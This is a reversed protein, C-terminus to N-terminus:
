DRTIYGNTNFKSSSPPVTISSDSVKTFPIIFTTITNKQIDDQSKIKLIKSTSDYSYNRLNPITTPQIINMQQMVNDMIIFNIFVDKSIKFNSIFSINIKHSDAPTGSGTYNYSCVIIDPTYINNDIKIAPNINSGLEIIKNDGNFSALINNNYDRIAINAINSKVNNFVSLNNKSHINFIGDNDINMNVCKRKTPDSESNCINFFQNSNTIANINKYSTIISNFDVEITKTSDLNSSIISSINSNDNKIKIIKLLNSDLKDLYDKNNELIKEQNTKVTAINNVVTDQLKNFAKNTNNIVDESENLNKNIEITYSVYTNYVYALLTFILIILILIFIGLFILIFDSM